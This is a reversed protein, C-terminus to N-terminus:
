TEYWIKSNSAVVLRKLTAMNNVGTPTGTPNGDGDLTIGTPLPPAFLLSTFSRVSSSSLEGDGSAAAQIQWYYTSNYDVGGVIQWSSNLVADVLGGLLDDEGFDSNDKKFYVDLLDGAEVGGGDISWQLLPQITVGTATNAPSSLNIQRIAETTFSVQLTTYNRTVEGSTLTGHTLSIDVEWTYETNGSLATNIPVTITGTYDFPSATIGFTLTGEDINPSETLSMGSASVIAVFAGSYWGLPPVDLYEEVRLLFTMEALDVSVNTDEDAPNATYLVVSIRTDGISPM